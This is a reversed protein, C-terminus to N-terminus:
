DQGSAAEDAGGYNAGEWIGGGTGMRFVLVAEQKEGSGYSATDNCPGARVGPVSTTTLAATLKTKRQDTM